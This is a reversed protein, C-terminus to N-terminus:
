HINYILNRAITTNLNGYIYEMTIFFLLKIINLKIYCCNYKLISYILM